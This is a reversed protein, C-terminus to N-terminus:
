YDTKGSFNFDKILLSPVFSGVLACKNSIMLVNKLVELINVTYRLNKIGKTIKGNEVLFTGDRTLGTILTKDPDVLRTYWFRTILIGRDITALMEERTSDGPALVMNRPFPGFTNPQPIAHGTSKKNEKNAYYSDYVVNRAIGNEILTVRETPAGEYDFHLGTTEPHHVDDTITINDGTIKRGIKGSMFGRGEHYALAGFGIYGLYGLIEAVAQPELLVTYTGPPIEVPKRSLMAKECAIEALAECDISTFHKAHQGAFGSSDDSMLTVEVNSSEQTGFGRTGLSNAVDLTVCDTYIAGAATLDHKRAVNIMKEVCSARKEPSVPRIEEVQEVPAAKPLSRFDPDDKQHKALEHATRMGKTVRERDLSGVSAAGIKKGLIVRAWLSEEQKVINQHIISNAFRTVGMKHSYVGVEVQDAEVAQLATDTMDQIFERTRM